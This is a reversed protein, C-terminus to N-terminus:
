QESSISFPCSAMDSHISIFLMPINSNPSCFMVALSLSCHLELLIFFIPHHRSIEAWSSSCQQVLPVYLWGNIQSRDATSQMDSGKICALIPRTRFLHYISVFSRILQDNTYGSVGSAHLSCHQKCAYDSFAM